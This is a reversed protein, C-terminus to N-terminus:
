EKIANNGPKVEICQIIIVIIYCDKEDDQITIYMYWFSIFTSREHVHVPLLIKGNDLIAVGWFYNFPVVAETLYIASLFSLGISVIKGWM